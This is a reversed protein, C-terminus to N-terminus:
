QAVSPLEARSAFQFAPACCMVSFVIASAHWGGAVLMPNDELLMDTSLM